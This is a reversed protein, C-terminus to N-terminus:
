GPANSAAIPKQLLDAVVDRADISKGNIESRDLAAIRLFAEAITEATPLTGPDEDPYAAARMGTRTAGPNVAVCALGQPGIEEALVQSLGEVAFKSVSYPGWTARGKRGVGSSVNMIVGAGQQLLTPLFARSVLFPGNANVRLVDNWNGPTVELLPAKPGLIGANNVLVDVRGLESTAMLALARAGDPESVDVTTWGARGGDALIGEAVARVEEDSRACLFVRAGDRSFARALAAGIGRGAGTIVVGKDTFRRAVARVM